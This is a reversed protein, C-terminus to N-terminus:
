NFSEYSMSKANTRDLSHFISAFTIRHNTALHAKLATLIEDMNTMQKKSDLPIPEGIWEFTGLDSNPAVVQIQTQKLSDVLRSLETNQRQLEAPSM